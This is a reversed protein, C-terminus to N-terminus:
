STSAQRAEVRVELGAFRGNLARAFGGRDRQEVTGSNPPGSRSTWSSSGSGVEVVNATM